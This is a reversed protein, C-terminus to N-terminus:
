QRSRSALWSGPGGNGRHRRGASDEPPSGLPLWKIRIKRTRMPFQSELTGSSHSCGPRPSGSGPKGRVGWGPSCTCLEKGVEGGKGRQSQPWKQTLFLLSLCFSVTHKNSRRRRNSAFNNFCCFCTAWLWRPELLGRGPGAM